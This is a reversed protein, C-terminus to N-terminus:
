SGVNKSCCAGMKAAGCAAMEAMPEGKRQLEKKLAKIEGAPGPQRLKESSKQQPEDAPKANANGPSSAGVDVHEPVPGSRCYASLETPKEPWRNGSWQSNDAREATQNRRPHPCWEGRCVCTKEMKYLTIM